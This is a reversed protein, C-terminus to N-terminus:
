CKCGALLWVGSVIFGWVGPAFTLLVGVFSGSIDDPPPSFQWHRALLGGATVFVISVLMLVQPSM